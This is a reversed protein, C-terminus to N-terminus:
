HNEEKYTSMTQAYSNHHHASPTWRNSTHLVTKKGVHQYTKYDGECKRVKGRLKSWMGTVGLRPPPLTTIRDASRFRDNM